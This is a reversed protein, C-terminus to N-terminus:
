RETRAGLRAAQRRPKPWAERGPAKVACATAFHRRRSSSWFASVKCLSGKMWTRTGTVRGRPGFLDGQQRPMMTAADGVLRDHDAEAYLEQIHLERLQVAYPMTSLKM